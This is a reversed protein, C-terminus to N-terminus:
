QGTNHNRPYFDLWILFPIPGPSLSGALSEQHEIWNLRETMDLVQLGMSQLMGPKWAWWWSRSSAWVWTWQTPSAIWGDWGRDDGEGVKLRVWCWPRKWHTLEECSTTLTNSNRSWCWDKWHINLVSKRYSQNTLDGQLGLSEWFDEGGGCNLFMLEKVSLKKKHHM